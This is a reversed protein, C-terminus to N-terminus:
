GSRPVAWPCPSMVWVYSSTGKFIDWSNLRRQNPQYVGSFTLLHKCSPQTKPLDRRGWRPRNERLSRQIKMWVGEARAVVGQNSRM